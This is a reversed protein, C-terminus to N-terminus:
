EGEGLLVKTMDKKMAKIESDRLSAMYDTVKVRIDSSKVRKVDSPDTFSRIVQEVSRTCRVEIGGRGDLGFPGSCTVKQTESNKKMYDITEDIAAKTFGQVYDGKYTDYKKAVTEEIPLNAKFIEKNKYTMKVSEGKGSVEFGDKFEINTKESM